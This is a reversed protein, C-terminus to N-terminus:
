TITRLLETYYKDRPKEMCARKCRADLKNLLNNGFEFINFYITEKIFPDYPVTHEEHEAENKANKRQRHKKSENQNTKSRLVKMLLLSKQNM